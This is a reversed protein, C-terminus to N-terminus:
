PERLRGKPKAKRARYWERFGPLYSLGWLRINTWSWPYLSRSERFWHRARVYEGTRLFHRGLDTYVVATKRALIAQKEPNDRFVEWAAQHFLPYTEEWVRKSKSTQSLHRRYKILSRPIRDIPHELAIRYFLADEGLRIFENFGGLNVFVEKNVLVTSPVAVPQNQFLPDRKTIAKPVPILRGAEDICDFGSYVFPVRPETRIRDTQAALKDPYWVDDQDLLAVWEGKAIAVGRNRATASGQNPQFHYILPIPGSLQSIIDASNDSSGDDVVIIELPPYTQDWVSQITETIFRTGNFVPIVVSISPM